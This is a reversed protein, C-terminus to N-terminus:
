KNDYIKALINITKEICETKNELTKLRNVYQIRESMTPQKLVSSSIVEMERNCKNPILVTNEEINFTKLHFLTTLINDLNKESFMELEQFGGYVKNNEINV